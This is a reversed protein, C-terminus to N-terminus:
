NMRVHKPITIVQGDVIVWTAAIVNHISTPTGVLHLKGNIYAWLSTGIAFATPTMNSKTPLGRPVMGCIGM